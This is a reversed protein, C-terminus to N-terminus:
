SHAYLLVIILLFFFCLFTGLQDYRGLTAFVRTGPSWTQYTGTTLQISEYFRRESPLLFTDLRGATVSQVVGLLGQFLVIGIMITTLRKVFVATPKLQVIVFFLLVFRIIQRIGLVGITLPVINVVLSTLAILLFFLFPLDIPTAIYKQRRFLVRALVVIVLLYM